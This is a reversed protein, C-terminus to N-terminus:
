KIERWHTPISNGLTLGDTNKLYFIGNERMIGTTEWQKSEHTDHYAVKILIVREGVKPKLNLLNTYGEKEYISKPSSKMLKVVKGM